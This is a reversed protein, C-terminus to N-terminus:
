YEVIVMGSEGNAGASGAAGSGTQGSPKGAGGAGGNGGPEIAGGKLNISASSTGLTLTLDEFRNEQASGPSGNACATAETGGGGGGGGGGGTASILAGLSSTGGTGGTTGTGGTGGGGAGGGGGSSTGVTVAYITGPTVVFVDEGYGGRVGRQGIGGDGGKFGFGSTNGGGGGGGGGGGSAGYVKVRISTVGAPVTFNDNATYVVRTKPTYFGVAMEVRFMETWVPSLETGTNKSITVVGASERILVDKASGETGILRVGPAAKKITVDGTFNRTGDLLAYLVNDFGPKWTGSGSDYVYPIDQDTRYFLQGDIPSAPFSTGKPLVGDASIARSLRTVLDAVSGKLTLANGLLTQLAPVAIYLGNVNEAVGDSGSPGNSQPTGTDPTGTTHYNSLGAALDQGM